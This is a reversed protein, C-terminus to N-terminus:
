CHMRVHDDKQPQKCSAVLPIELNVNEREHTYVLCLERHGEDLAVHKVCESLFMTALSPNEYNQKLNNKTRKDDIM